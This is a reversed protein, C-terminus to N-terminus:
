PAEEKPPALLAALANRSGELEGQFSKATNHFEGQKLWDVTDKLAWARGLYRGVEVGLKAGILFVKRECCNECVGFSDCPPTCPFTEGAKRELFAQIEPTM